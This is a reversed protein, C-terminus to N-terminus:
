SGTVWFFPSQSCINEPAEIDNSNNYDNIMNWDNDFTGM